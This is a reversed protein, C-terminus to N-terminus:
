NAKQKFKQWEFRLSLFQPRPAMKIESSARILSDISWGIPIKNSTQTYFTM